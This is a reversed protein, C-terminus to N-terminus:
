KMQPCFMNLYNNGVHIIVLFRRVRLVPNKKYRIITFFYVNIDCIAHFSSLCVSLYIIYLVLILYLRHSHIRWCHKALLIVFFALVPSKKLCFLCRLQKQLVYIISIKFFFCRFRVLSLVPKLAISCLM